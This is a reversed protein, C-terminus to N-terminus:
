AAAEAGAHALRAFDPFVALTNDWLRDVLADPSVDRLRALYGATHVVFAPENRQGRCPVPALYPCDTEVLMRDAPVHQALHRLATASKFTLTGAFSVYYGADLMRALYAADDSAFCHLIGAPRAGPRAPTSGLIEAVHTDAERNHVILPLRLEEALRLHWGLADRQLQPPTNTRYYDLGTEGIAVVEPERALAALAAFDDSTHEAVSNPHIGVSARTRPIRRALDVAARSSALDYGVLMMGAVGAASARALVQERDVDFARDMIHAHTDILGPAATM